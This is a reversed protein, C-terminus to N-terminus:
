QNESIEDKQVWGHWALGGFILCHKKSKENKRIYTQILVM